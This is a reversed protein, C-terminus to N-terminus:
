ALLDDNNGNRKTFSIGKSGGLGQFFGSSAKWSFVNFLCNQFLKIQKDLLTWFRQNRDEYKVGFYVYTRPQM